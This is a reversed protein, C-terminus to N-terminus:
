TKIRLEMKNISHFARKVTDFDQISTKWGTVYTDLGLKSMTIFDNPSMTM